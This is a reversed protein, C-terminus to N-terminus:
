VPDARCYRALYDSHPIAGEAMRALPARIEALEARLRRPDHRTVLPDGNAPWLEQGLLV